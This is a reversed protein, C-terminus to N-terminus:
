IKQIMFNFKGKDQIKRKRRLMEASPRHGNSSQDGETSETTLIYQLPIQEPVPKPKRRPSTLASKRSKLNWRLDKSSDFFDSSGGINM